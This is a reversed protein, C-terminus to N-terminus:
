LYVSYRVVSDCLMCVCACAYARVYMTCMPACADARDTVCGCASVGVRVSACICVLVCCIRVSM